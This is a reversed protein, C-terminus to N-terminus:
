ETVALVAEQDPRVVHPLEHLTHRPEDAVIGEPFPKASPGGLVTRRSISKRTQLECDQSSVRALSSLSAALALLPGAADLFVASRSPM